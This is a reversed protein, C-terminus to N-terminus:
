HGTFKPKRKELLSAVAEAHDATEHAISQFAASLELLSALEMNQGERILRKTLRLSHVPNAAIRSALAMAADLLEGEPAVQSVLGCEKAQEATLSDGTFSMEMAKSLGVLRPLFWAGGDGPVIGVKVFSEAFVANHSAIRIDCMCALDLGAGIAPGNVAAITPIELRHLALPIRQITKKYSNRTAIPTERPAFGSRDRMKKLDGGSSFSSGAGTLIVAAVSLDDSIEECILEFERCDESTSIANRTEPRSMTLITVPGERHVQLFPTM